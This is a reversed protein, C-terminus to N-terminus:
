GQQTPRVAGPGPGTRSPQIRSNGQTLLQRLQGLDGDLEELRGLRALAHRGEGLPTVRGPHAPGRRGRRRRLLQVGYCSFTSYGGPTVSGVPHRSGTTSRTVGCWWPIDIAASRPRVNKFVPRVSYAPNPTSTVTRIRAPSATRPT